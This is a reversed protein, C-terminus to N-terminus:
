VISSTSVKGVTTIIINLRTRGTGGGNWRWEVAESKGKGAIHIMAQIEDDEEYGMWPNAHMRVVHVRRSCSKKKTHLDTVM